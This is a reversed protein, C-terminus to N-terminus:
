SLWGRGIFFGAALAGYGLVMAYWLPVGRTITVVQPPAAEPEDGEEVGDSEAALEVAPTPLFITTPEKLGGAVRDSLAFAYHAAAEVGEIRILANVAGDAFCRALQGAADVGVTTVQALIQGEHGITTQRLVHKPLSM